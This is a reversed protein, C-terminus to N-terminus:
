RKSGKARQKIEREETAHLMIKNQANAGAMAHESGKSWDYSAAYAFIDGPKNFAAASIATQVAPFQKLRQKSDKDWFHFTGDAGSTAFTGFPHFAINNVSYILKMSDNRHCKFAFNKKSDLDNIHHIAVRGEISGLAFGTQDPFCAVCRSQHKLPSDMTKFPQQPSKLNYVIIKRNATAVILLDGVSDM